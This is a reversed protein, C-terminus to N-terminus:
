TKYKLYHLLLARNLIDTKFNELLPFVLDFIELSEDATIRVLRGHAIDNRNNALKEDIIGVKTEYNKEDIGLINCIEVLVETRLNYYTAISYDYPIFSKKDQNLLINKLALIKLAVNSEQYEKLKELESIAFLGINIENNKLDLHSIFKILCESSYKIFGEWHSYLVSILNKAYVRGHENTKNREVLKKFLTLENRRTVFDLDVADQLDKLSKFRKSM